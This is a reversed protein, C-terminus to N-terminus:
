NIQDGASAVGTATRNAAKSAKRRAAASAQSGTDSDVNPESDHQEVEDGEADDESAEGASSEDLSLDDGELLPTPANELEFEADKDENDVDSPLEDEPGEDQLLDLGEFADITYRKNPQRKRGSKRVGSSEM